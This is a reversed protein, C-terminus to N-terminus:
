QNSLTAETGAYYSIHSVMSLFVIISYEKTNIHYQYFEDRNIFQPENSFMCM